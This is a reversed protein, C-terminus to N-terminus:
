VLIQCKHSHCIHSIVMELWVIMYAINKHKTINKYGHIHNMILFRWPYSYTVLNKKKM